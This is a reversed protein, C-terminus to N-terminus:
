AHKEVPKEAEVDDLRPRRAKWLVLVGVTILAVPWIKGVWELVDMYAGGFLVALGVLGIIGAPILAWWHTEHSFVATLIPVLLFGAALFLLFWGGEDGGFRATLPSVVMGTGAGLGTLIGGPIFWGSQRSIIGAVIFALGLGLLIITGVWGSQADPVFQAILTLVGAFLLILGGILGGSVKREM